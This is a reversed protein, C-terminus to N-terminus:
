FIHTLRAVQGHDAHHIFAEIAKPAHQFGNRHHWGDASSPSRLSEVCVSTYDKSEKHHIHHTYFYRHPCEGWANGTENAMLLALDKAKAGDGHTTGIINKGYRFYKRHSTSCNVTVSPHQRFWSKLSHAMFFGSMVDHNSPNFQVTVPALMALTEIQEVMIGFAITFANFWLTDTDQHTGKTTSNSPGDANLIDNGLIFLIKHIDFGSSKRLLGALGERVRLVAIQTNYDEGTEVAIALKNFHVDAPDYVFLHGDTSKKYEIKEYSPAHADMKAILADAMEEYTIPEQGKLFVSYHKGKYWYHGVQGLPLGVTECEAALAPHTESLESEKKISSKLKYIWNPAVGAADSLEKVTANPNTKLIEKIKKRATM